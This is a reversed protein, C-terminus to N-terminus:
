WALRTLIAAGLEGSEPREHANTWAAWGGMAGKTVVWIVVGAVLSTVVLGRVLQPSGSALRGGNTSDARALRTVRVMHGLVHITMVAFLAVFSVKHLEVLTHAPPGALWVAVGTVMVAVTSLTVLPGIVRLLPHPPGAQRYRLDGLYYRCFRWITSGMKLLTPPILALGIGIHWPLLPGIAVITVGEAALMGLLVLGTTATLRSNAEVGSALRRTSSGPCM